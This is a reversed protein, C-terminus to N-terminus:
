DTLEKMDDVYECQQVASLLLTHFFNCFPLGQSPLVITIRAVLSGKWYLADWVLYIEVGFLLKICQKQLM